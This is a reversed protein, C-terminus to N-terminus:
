LGTQEQAQIAMASPNNFANPAPSADVTLPTNTNGVGGGGGLGPPGPTTSQGVLRHSQIDNASSHTGPTDGKEMSSNALPGTGGVVFLDESAM